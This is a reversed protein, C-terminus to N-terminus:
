RLEGGVPVSCDHGPQGHPPNVKPTQDLRVPSVTTSPAVEPTSQTKAASNLPAGVPIDCRHGPLGHAPNVEPTEAESNNEMMQSAASPQPATAENKEENGCSTFLVVLLLGLSLIIKNLSTIKKM